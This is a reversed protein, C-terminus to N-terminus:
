RHVYCPRPQHPDLVVLQVVVVEEVPLGSLVISHDLKPPTSHSRAQPAASAAAARGAAVAVVHPPAREERSCVRHRPLAVSLVAVKVRAACPARVQGLLLPSLVRLPPPRRRMQLASCRPAIM